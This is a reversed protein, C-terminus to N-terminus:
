PVVANIIVMKGANRGQSDRMLGDVEVSDVVGSMAISSLRDCLHKVSLPNNVLTSFSLIYAVAHGVNPDAEVSSTNVMLKENLQELHKLSSTLQSTQFQNLMQDSAHRPPMVDADAVSSAFDLVSATNDDVAVLPVVAYEYKVLEEPTCGAMQIPLDRTKGDHKSFVIQTCAAGLSRVTKDTWLPTSRPFTMEVFESYFQHHLPDGAKGGAYLIKISRGINAGVSEFAKGDRASTERAAEADEGNRYMIPSAPTTGEMAFAEVPFSNLAEKAASWSSFFPREEEPLLSLVDETYVAAFRAEAIADQSEADVVPSGEVTQRAGREMGLLIGMTPMMLTVAHGAVKKMTGPTHAKKNEGGGSAEASSAGLVSVGVMYHPTLVNHVANVFPFAQRVRAPASSVVSLINNIQLASGDCDNADIGSMRPVQRLWSEAAVAISGTPMVSTRGDARYSTLFNAAISMAAAVPRGGRKAAKIGPLKTDELFAEVDEQVFQLEVNICQELLSNITTYSFESSVPQCVDHVFSYGSDNSGVPVRAVVKTLSPSYPYVLVKQRMNWAGDAYSSMVNEAAKLAEDRKEDKVFRINYHRDKEDVLKFNSLSVVASHAQWSSYTLPVAACSTGNKLIKSLYAAGQGSVSNVISGNIAAGSRSTCALLKTRNNMVISMPEDKSLAFQSPHVEIRVTLAYTDSLDAVTSVKSGSVAFDTSARSAAASISGGTALFIKEFPPESQIADFELFMKEPVVEPDTNEDIDPLTKLPTLAIDEEAAAAVEECSAAVDQQPEQAEVAEVAESAVIAEELVSEVVAHVVTADCPAAPQEEGVPESVDMSDEKKLSFARKGCM